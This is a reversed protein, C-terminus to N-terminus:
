IDLIEIKTIIYTPSTATLSTITTDDAFDGTRASAFWDALSTHRYSDGSVTHFSAMPTDGSTIACPFSDTTVSEGAPVTFSNQGNVTMQAPAVTFDFGSGGVAALGFWLSSVVLPATPAATLTVRVFDGTSGTPFKQRATYNNWGPSSTVPAWSTTVWGALDVKTLEAQVVEGMAGGHWIKNTKSPFRKSSITKEWVANPHTCTVFHSQDAALGSVSWEGLIDTLSEGALAGTTENFVRVKANPVVGSSQSVKGALSGIGGTTAKKFSAPKIVRFSTQRSSASDYILKAGYEVVVSHTRTQTATWGTWPGAFLGKQYWITGDDSWQVVIYRPSQLLGSVNTRSVLAVEVIDKDNGSGFDYGIWAGDIDGTASAWGQDGTVIGDFAKVAEWGAQESSKIVTGGTCVTSGGAVIRM